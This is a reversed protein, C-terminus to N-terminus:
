LVQRFHILATQYQAALCLIPSQKPFLYRRNLKLRLCSIYKPSLKLLRWNKTTMVRFLNTFHKSVFIASQTETASLFYIETIIYTIALEIIDTVRFFQHAHQSCAPNPVITLFYIASKSETASSVHKDFYIM